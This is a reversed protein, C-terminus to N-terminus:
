DEMKMNLIMIMKSKNTNKKVKKRTFQIVKM